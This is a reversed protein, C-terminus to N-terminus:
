SGGRGRRMHRAPRQGSQSHPSLGQQPSYAPGSALATNSPQRPLLGRTLTRCWLRCDACSGFSSPMSYLLTSALPNSKGRGGAPYPLGSRGRLLWMPRAHEEGICRLCLPRDKLLGMSPYRTSMSPSSAAAVRIRTLMPLHSPCGRRSRSRGMRSWQQLLSFRRGGSLAPFGRSRCGFALMSPQMTLLHSGM